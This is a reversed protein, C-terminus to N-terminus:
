KNADKALLDRIEVLLDTESPAEEATGKTRERYMTVPKVILFYVVAAILIFGVLATFFPGVPLGFWTVNDFNPDQGLIKSIIGLIIKTFTDVVKGFATAMIVAIALELLNGRM